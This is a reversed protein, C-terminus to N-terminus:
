GRSGSMGVVVNEGRMWDSSSRTATSFGRSAMSKLRYSDLVSVRVGPAEASLAAYVFEDYRM